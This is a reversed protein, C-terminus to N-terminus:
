TREPHGKIWQLRGRHKLYYLAATLLTSDATSARLATTSKQLKTLKNVVAQCDSFITATSNTISLLYLATVVSLLEMSYASIAELATGNHIHLTIIPLDM